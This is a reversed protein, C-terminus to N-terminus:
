NWLQPNKTCLANANSAYERFPPIEEPTGGHLEPSVLCVQFLSRLKEYDAADVAKRDFCDVWVWKAKGAFPLVFDLGEYASYRVAFHSENQKLCRRVLTPLATDLFFFKEISYKSLVRLISDELLDEKTNLILPGQQGRRAYEEAWAEFPEGLIWPDHSLHLSGPHSVQSRLDIEAGEQVSLTSLAKLTNVRHRVIQTKM